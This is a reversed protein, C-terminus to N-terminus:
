QTFLKRALQMRHESKLLGAKRCGSHGAAYWSLRADLPEAECVKFSRRILDIAIPAANRPVQLLGADVHATPPQIQFLGFSKGSDGVANPHFKSEFHALAILVAATKKPGDDGSFLPDANSAQAIAEATEQYTFLWPTSPDLAYMKALVWNPEVPVQAMLGLGLMFAIFNM